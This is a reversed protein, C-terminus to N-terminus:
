SPFEVAPHVNSSLMGSFMVIGSVNYCFGGTISCFHGISCQFKGAAPLYWSGDIVKLEKHKLRYSTWVEDDPLCSLKSTGTM